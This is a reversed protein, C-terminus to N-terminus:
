GSLSRSARVLLWTVVAERWNRGCSGGCIWVEEDTDYVVAIKERELEEIYDSDVEATELKFRLLAVQEIPPRTEFDADM